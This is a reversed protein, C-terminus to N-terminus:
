GRYSGNLNLAAALYYFTGSGGPDHVLIFVADDDGDSDLDATVPDNFVSTRIKSAANPSLAIESHGNHLAIKQGAIEYTIDLYNVAPESIEGSVAVPGHGSQLFKIGDSPIIALAMAVKSEIPLASMTERILVEATTDRLVVKAISVRNYFNVNRAFLVLYNGFDIEPIEEEPKFTQWVETFVKRNKLYGIPLERQGEPLLGLESVPFDGRWGQLIPIDRENIAQAAAAVQVWALLLALLLGAVYLLRYLSSNMEISGYTRETLM